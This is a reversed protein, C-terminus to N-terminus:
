QLHNLLHSQLDAKRAFNANCRDCSFPRTHTRIHASLAKTCKYGPHKCTEVPCKHMMQMHVMQVHRRLGGRRGFTTNCYFCRWVRQDQACHYIAKHECLQYPTKEDSACVDCIYVGNPPLLLGESLPSKSLSYKTPFKQHNQNEENKSKPVELSACIEAMLLSKRVKIKQISQELNSSKKGFDKRRPLIDHNRQSTSTM